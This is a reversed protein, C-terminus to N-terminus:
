GSQQAKDQGLVVVVDSDQRAQLRIGQGDPEADYAKVRTRPVKLVSAVAQAATRQGSAYFVVTQGRSQNTRDTNVGGDQFGAATMRDLAGRALGQITTGNLVTVTVQGRDVKPATASGSGSGTATSTSGGVTNPASPTSDDGGGAILLAAVVAVVVAAAAVAALILAVPRRRSPSVDDDYAPVYRGAGGSASAAAAPRPAPRAAATSPGTAGTAAAAGAATSAAPLGSPRSPQEPRGPAAPRPPSAGPPLPV